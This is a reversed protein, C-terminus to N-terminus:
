TNACHPLAAYRSFIIAMRLAHARGSRMCSYEKRQHVISEGPNSVVKGNSAAVQLLVQDSKLDWLVTGPLTETAATSRITRLNRIWLHLAV